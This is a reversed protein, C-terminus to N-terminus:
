AGIKTAMVQEAYKRLLDKSKAKIGHEVAYTKDDRYAGVAAVATALLQTNRARSGRRKERAVNEGLAQVPDMRGDSKKGNDIAYETWFEVATDPEGALTLLAGMVIGGPFRARTPNIEDLLKIEDAFLLIGDNIVDNKTEKKPSTRHIYHFLERIATSIEGSKLMSSKPSIGAQNYAGTVRDTGTEAVLSNDFRDYLQLVAGYDACEYVDVSLTPPAEVKGLRWVATRTHGDLKYRSGDPLVAMAVVSHMPDPTLLHAVNGKEIRVIEDRQRPNRPVGIWEGLDMEITEARRYPKDGLGADKREISHVVKSLPRKREVEVKRGTLSNIIGHM